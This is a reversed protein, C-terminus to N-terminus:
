FPIESQEYDPEGNLLYFTMFEKHIKKLTENRELEISDLQNRYIVKGFLFGKLRYEEAAWKFWAAYVLEWYKDYADSWHPEGALELNEKICIPHGWDRVSFDSGSMSHQKPRPINRLEPYKSRYITVTKPYFTIMEDEWKWDHEACLDQYFLFKRFLSHGYGDQMPM